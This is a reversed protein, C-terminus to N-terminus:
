RAEGVTVWVPASWLRHGDHQTVRVLYYRPGAPPVRETRWVTSATTPDPREREVVIGDELLEISDITDRTEPDEVTVEVTVRPGVPGLVEGM